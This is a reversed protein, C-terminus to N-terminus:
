SGHSLDKTIFLQLAADGTPANLIQRRRPEDKIAETIQSLIQLYHTQADDPGGILCVLRVPAGDIADWETPESLIGICVFFSDQAALKAHPIAVGVGIGTSILQERDFVAKKFTEKDRIAGKLHAHEILEDIVFSRTGGPLFVVLDPSLVTELSFAQPRKFLVNM